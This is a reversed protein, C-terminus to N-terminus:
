FKTEKNPRHCSSPLSSTTHVHKSILDTWQKQKRLVEKKCNPIFIIFKWNFNISIFNWNCPLKKRVKLHEVMGLQLTLTRSSAFFTSLGLIWAHAYWVGDLWRGLLIWSYIHCEMPSFTWSRKNKFNSKKGIGSFPMSVMTTSYSIILSKSKM